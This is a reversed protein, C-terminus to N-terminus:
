VDENFPALPGGYDKWDWKMNCGDFASIYKYKGGTGVDTYEVKSCPESSYCNGAIMSGGACGYQASVTNALVLMAGILGSVKSAM